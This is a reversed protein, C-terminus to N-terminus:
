IGRWLGDYIEDILAEGENLFVEVVQLDHPAKYDSPQAEWDVLPHGKKRSPFDNGCIFVLNTRPIPTANDLLLAKDISLIAAAFGEADREKLLNRLQRMGHPLNKDRENFQHWIGKGSHVKQGSGNDVKPGLLLNAVTSPSLAKRWKAEGALYRGIHGNDDLVIALFDSGHRGMVERILSADRALAFLYHEVDEHHRFLFIPVRWKHNGVYAYHETLMGAMVEGFLGRRAKSPLCNPYTAHAGASDADPHLDISIEEHFHERADLHASEFYPVLADVLAGDSAGVQELLLHGYSGVTSPYRSLWQNLAHGPAKCTHMRTQTETRGWPPADIRKSKLLHYGLM